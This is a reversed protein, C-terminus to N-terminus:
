SGRTVAALLARGFTTTRMDSVNRRSWRPDYPFSQILVGASSRSAAVETTKSLWRIPENGVIGARASRRVPRRESVNMVQAGSGASM